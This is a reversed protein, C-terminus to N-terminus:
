APREKSQNISIVGYIGSRAKLLDPLDQKKGGQARVDVHSAWSDVHFVVSPGSAHSVFCGQGKLATLGGAVVWGVM